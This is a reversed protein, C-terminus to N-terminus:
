GGGYSLLGRSPLRGSRCVEAVLLYLLYLLDDLAICTPRRDVLKALPEPDASLPDAFDELAM